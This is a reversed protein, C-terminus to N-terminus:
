STRGTDHAVFHVWGTSCGRRSARVTGTARDKSITGKGAFGYGSRVSRFNFHGHKVGFPGTAPWLGCLSNWAASLENGHPGQPYFLELGGKFAEYTHSRTAAVAFSATEVSM